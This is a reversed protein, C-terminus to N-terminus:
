VICAKTNIRKIPKKKKKKKERIIILIKPYTNYKCNGTETQNQCSTLCHREHAYLQELSPAAHAPCEGDPQDCSTVETHINTHINIM